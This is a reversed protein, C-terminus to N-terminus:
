KIRGGKELMSAIIRPMERNAFLNLDMISKGYVEDKRYGLVNLFADNVDKFRGDPYGYLAVLAPNHRFLREFRELAETESTLDKIVGFICDEKDWKGLSLRTDVPIQTGDKRLIPIAVSDRKGKVVDPLLNKIEDIKDPPHIGLLGIKKLEEVTYGTEAIFANNAHLIKEDKSVILVMHHLSDFFTRFNAESAELKEQLTKRITIDRAAAYILNGKPKSRWEIYRYSGDHCRYRNVFNLVEKDERLEGLAQLTSQMDDPHIYELFKHKLLEEIPYGLVTEWQKNLKYFTGDMGTICLLDLNVSFFGEMEEAQKKQQTIDTFLTTFFGKESSYVQVQYWRELPKAYQEITKNEGSLAVSGYFSIWDFSDNIIDPLIERVTKGVINKAELGTITEFAPNVYLFRYDVPVGADNVVIQHHAIAFPSLFIIAKSIQTEM